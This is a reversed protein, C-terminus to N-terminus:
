LQGKIPLVVAEMFKERLPRAAWIEYTYKQTAKLDSDFLATMEQAFAHDYINLNAEDNLQFSRM